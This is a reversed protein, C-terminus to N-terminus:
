FRACSLNPFIHSHIISELLSAVLLAPSPAGFYVHHRSTQGSLSSITPPVQCDRNADAIAHKLDARDHDADGSLRPATCHLTEFVPSHSSNPLSFRLQHFKQRTVILSFGRSIARSPLTNKFLSM